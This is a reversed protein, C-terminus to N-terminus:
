IYFPWAEELARPSLSVHERWQLVSVAIDNGATVEVSLGMKMHM